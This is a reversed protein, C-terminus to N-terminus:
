PRMIQSRIARVIPLGSPSDQNPAAAIRTEAFSLGKLAKATNASICIAIVRDTPLQDRVVCAAFAAASKPSFLLTADVDYARLAQAVEELLQTAQEVRYLVERRTQFGWEGLLACLADGADEGSAHLLIGAAPDTWGRVAAALDMADGYASQVRLFGAERAASASQPGVAFVPITRNPTRSALARAGNASTVLVAQVGALDLPPGKLFEVRLLPVLLTQHGMQALRRM